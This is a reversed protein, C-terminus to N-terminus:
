SRLRTKDCYHREGELTGRRRAEEGVETFDAVSKRLLPLVASESVSPLDVVDLSEARFKEMMQEKLPVGLVTTYKSETQSLTAVKAPIDM